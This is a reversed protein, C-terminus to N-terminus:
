IYAIRRPCGVADICFLAFVSARLVTGTELEEKKMIIV